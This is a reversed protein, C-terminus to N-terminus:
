PNASADAKQARMAAELRLLVHADTAAYIVQMLSRTYWFIANAKCPSRSMQATGALLELSPFELQQGQLWSLSAILM